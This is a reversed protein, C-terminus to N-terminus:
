PFIVNQTLGFRGAGTLAAAELVRRREKGCAVCGYGVVELFRLWGLEGATRIIMAFVNDPSM